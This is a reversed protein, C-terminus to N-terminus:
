CGALRRGAADFAVAESMTVLDKGGHTFAISAGKTGEAPPALNTSVRSTVTIAGPGGPLEKVIFSQEMAEPRLTYEEEVSAGRAYWVSRREARTQPEAPGGEAIVRNGLKVSELAYSLGPSGIKKLSYNAAFDVWGMELTAGYARSNYAYLGGKERLENELDAVIGELAGAPLKEFAKLERERLTAELEDSLADFPGTSSEAGDVVTTPEKAAQLPHLRAAREESLKTLVLPTPVGHTEKQQGTPQPSGSASSPTDHGRWSFWATTLLGLLLVAILISFGRLGVANSKM